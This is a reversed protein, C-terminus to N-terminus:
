NILIYDFLKNVKIKFNPNIAVFSGDSDREVVSKTAVESGMICISDKEYIPIGNIDTVGTFERVSGREVEVWEVNHEGGNGIWLSGDLDERYNKPMTFNGYIIEQSHPSIGKFKYIM